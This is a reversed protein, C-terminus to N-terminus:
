QLPESGITYNQFYSVCAQARAQGALTLGDTGDLSKEGHRIILINTNKLMSNGIQHELELFCLAQIPLV